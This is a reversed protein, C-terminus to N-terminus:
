GHLQELEAIVEARPNTAVMREVELFLKWAGKRPTDSAKEVAILRDLWEPHEKLSQALEALTTYGDENTDPTLPVDVPQRAVVLPGYRDMGKRKRENQFATTAAGLVAAGLRFKLRPAYPRAESESM